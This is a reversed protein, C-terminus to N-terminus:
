YTGNRGELCVTVAAVGAKDLAKNNRESAAVCADRTAFTGPLQVPGNVSLVLFLFWVAM